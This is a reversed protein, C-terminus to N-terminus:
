KTLLVNGPKLDRHVIGKEHAAQVAYALKQVLNAADNATLPTGKLQKALSGGGCYELAFYPQGEHTGFEYVQVIGPHNLAAIAEAEAEFRTRDEDSAHGGALIM